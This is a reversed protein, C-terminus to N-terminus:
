NGSGTGAREREVEEGARGLIGRAASSSSSSGQGTAPQPLETRNDPISLPPNEAAPLPAREETGVLSSVDEVAGCGAILAVLGFAGFVSILRRM